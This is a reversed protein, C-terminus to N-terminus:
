KVNSMTPSHKITRKEAIIYWRNKGTAQVPQYCCYNNDWKKAQSHDLSVLRRYTDRAIQEWLNM